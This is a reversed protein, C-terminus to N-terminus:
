SIRRGFGNPQGPHNIPFGSNAAAFKLMPDSSAKNQGKIQSKASQISREINADGTLAADDIIKGHIQSARFEAHQGFDDKITVFDSATNGLAALAKEASARENFAFQVAAGNPGFVVTLNFM